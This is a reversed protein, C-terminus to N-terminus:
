YHLETIYNVMGDLGCRVCPGPRRPASSGPSKRSMKQPEPPSPGSLVQSSVSPQQPLSGTCPIAADVAKPGPFINPLGFVDCKLVYLM